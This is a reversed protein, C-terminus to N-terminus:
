KVKALKQTFTKVEDGHKSIIKYFYLGNAIEDGDEDRGDWYIKNFGIQLSASPLIIERILRGAVTFIKIKLEEPPIVGRLEFTFYTNDSFPNPYNYVQLLDPNNYVNFIYRSSTSDFFNGSADKALVELIHRGDELTPKWTVIAKSNPFPTYEFTLDPGPVNLIKPINKYTHVITFYTSDLPLPSNDELTIIVEPESSIIDENIIERGDFTINFLPNISDRAVFFKKTFANNYYFYERDIQRVKLEAINNFLLRDTSISINTVESTSDIYSKAKLNYFTSDQMLEFFLSDADSGINKARISTLLPLGQLLTDSDFLIDDNELYLESLPEYDFQVSKLEIPDTSSFLSDSLDFNIKLSSYKVPDINQIDMSDPVQYQITDWMKLYSNFGLLTAFTLGNNNPNLLEYKLTKWKAVPGVSQSQIKGSADVYYGPFKSFKPAFGSARYVGAYIEDNTWDYCWSFYSQFNAPSPLMVLWEEEFFGDSLNFRRMFNNTFYETTYIKAGHVFFSTFGQSFSSGDLILDPNVLSWDNAPDFTRVTYKNRGFSDILTINYIYQGDSAIYVPGATTDTKDWRLLGPHVEITDVLESEVNIRVLKKALGVAVYLNQDAHYVISNKISDRFNSFSGYFFGKITGNNGTGIRYIMSKGDNQSATSWRNGFYLYTGDTTLATLHLSDPLTPNPFFDEILNLNSPRAPLTDTNLVLSKSLESYKINYTDFTELIKSHAFYGNFGPKSLTFSRVDSWRGYQIGDFIRTRWFYVGQPLDNVKLKIISGTASLNESVKIPSLFKNTTDIEITYLLEKNAYYGIDSIVFEIENNPSSFGDIPSIINPDSINFIIYQNVIINDSHDVEDISEKENIKAEINYFGGEVPIWSFKISDKISFSPINISGISYSTDASEAKLEIYVSDNPFNTGWNNIKLDIIITDGVVPFKPQITLNESKLEFDPTTPLAIKLLPDGLYTLLAIQFANSGVASAQNKAYLIFKGTIYDNQNFIRSFILNNMAVGSHWYTLGSSGLFGVCGKGDVKLFQEGFVDQNDFHATYCTVSLILPLRNQNELTYIDDNIFTLDWQYGGGHGYYNVLASGESIKQRIEPGGGRYQEQEPKSSDPYNFVFSTKYGDKSVYNNRLDISAQNFGFDLQDEYSLGSALLLVNQKWPKSNDAPYNMIKQLVINGEEVTEISIRGLALDPKVDTGSVAVIMNDSAAQGYGFAFYPISPIYNKRSTELLARYDHSMDGILVVYSPAPLVWNEFAYKVFDQLAFPNLLGYSFEDYIQEVDIVKIRPNSISTDPFNAQRFDALQNAISSFKPHTIIIYDAGSITSRLDSAEDIIISDVDMYGDSSVCFYETKANLTDWFTVYQDTIPYYITRNKSPIYIHMDSGQWQWMVYRNVGSVDYNKFNYYKDHVRNYRWYELSAWNIMIDDSNCLDGRVEIQLLNAPFLYISDLSQNFSRNFVISQQGDWTIDGVKQGSLSIYAKHDTTCASYNTMGHMGVKIKHDLRDPNLDPFNDFRFEFKQFVQGGVASAKGWFWHDIQSTPSYGLNVYISDKEFLVTELSSDYSRNYIGGVGNVKKYFKGLSDSEFSLWYVNSLNYINQNCNDSASPPVGVFFVYDDANFLNDANTDFVEIPIKLGENFMELKDIATSNGIQIGASLLQNYTLRYVGKKNLYIKYYTKNPNYWYNETLNDSIVETRGSFSYAIQSNIINSNIYENTMKDLVPTTFVGVSQSSKYDIRLVIKKNFILTREVPNFQFPFVTLSATKIFRFISESNIIAQDNPFLSNQGYVEQNFKLSSFPQNMSDPTSIIFKDYYAIKEVDVISVVANSNHPIGIQYLKTPLFPDGPMQLPIENAEIRNFKIGDVLIDSINYKNAFDFELKIHNEDSELIKYEQSLSESAFFNYIILVSLIYILSNKM